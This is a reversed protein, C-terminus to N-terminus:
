YFNKNLKLIIVFKKLRDLRKLNEFEPFILNFIEKLYLVKM